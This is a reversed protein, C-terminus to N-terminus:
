SLRGGVTINQPVQMFFKAGEVAATKQRLRQVIQQATDTREDFPKLGWFVRATNEAPNYSSAGAYSFVGGAGPDQRVIEVVEHRIKDTKTVSADQRANVEGFIFGTDQQPFFGKPMIVYLFGTAVMLLLTSMLTAFQHRFVFHLGRDYGALVADYFREAAQNFRGKPHLGEQKLFLSCLVPTLTLSIIASAVVAASVTIAFERFLRGIIGFTALLSLPVALSPIVTAWLTRLFLFIVIVVLAITLMMTFQVDHVSARTVQSRDAMLDVKVAPPLSQELQPMLEKIRDVLAITNAGPAKQIAIGEAPQDGFWSIFRTNQVSDLVNGVDKIRLPAGNKYAIIVNGFSAADFLQDNTDLAVSWSNSAAENPLTMM